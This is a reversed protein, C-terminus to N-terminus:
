NFLSATVQVQQQVPLEMKYVAKDAPSGESGNPAKKSGYVIQLVVEDAGEFEEENPKLLFALCCGTVLEKREWEGFTLGPSFYMMEDIMQDTVIPRETTSLSLKAAEWHGQLLDKAERKARPFVLIPAHNPFHELVRHAIALM